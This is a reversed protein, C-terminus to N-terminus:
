VHDTVLMYHKINYVIASPSVHTIWLYWVLLHPGYRALAQMEWFFRRIYEKINLM